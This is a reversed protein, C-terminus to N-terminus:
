QKSHNLASPLIYTPPVIPILARRIKRNVYVNGIDTAQKATEQAPGCPESVTIVFFLGGEDFEPHLEPAAPGVLKCILLKKSFGIVLEPFGKSENVEVKVVPYVTAAVMSEKSLEQKSLFLLYLKVVSERKGAFM